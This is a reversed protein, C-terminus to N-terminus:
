RVAGEDGAAPGLRPATPGPTLPARAGPMYPQGAETAAGRRLVRILVETKMLPLGRTLTASRVEIETPLGRLRWLFGGAAETTSEFTVRLPTYTVAYPFLSLRPDLGDGGPGGGTQAARASRGDVPSRTSEGAEISFSRIRDPPASEHVARAVAAAVEALRDDASVRAEFERLPLGLDAAARPRERGVAQQLTRAREEVAAASTRARLYARLSPQICLYYGATVVLALTLFPVLRELTEGLSGARLTV